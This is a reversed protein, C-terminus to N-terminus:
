MLRDQNRPLIAAPPLNSKGIGGALKAPHRYLREVMSAYLARREPKNVPEAEVREVSDSGTRERAEPEAM